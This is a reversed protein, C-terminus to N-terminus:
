LQQQGILNTEEKRRYMSTVLVHLVNSIPCMQNEKLYYKM